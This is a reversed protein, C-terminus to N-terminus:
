VERTRDCNSTSPRPNSRVPPDDEELLASMLETLKRMLVCLEATESDNAQGLEELSSKLAEIQELLDDIKASM